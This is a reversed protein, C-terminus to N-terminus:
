NTTPDRRRPARTFILVCIVIALFAPTVLVLLGWNMRPAGTVADYEFCSLLTNQGPLAYTPVFNGRLEWLAERFARANVPIGQLARVIRGDRIAFTMAPHDYQGRAPDLKFWFGVATTLAAVDDASATAFTWGTRTALGFRAAYAGVTAADDAPDFSIALLDYAAGAGGQAAVTEALSLVYPSCVGVCRTYFFTLLLPRASWFESLPATRGAATTVTIDPLAGPSQALASAAVLFCSAALVWLSRRPRQRCGPM